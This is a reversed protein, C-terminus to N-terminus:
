AGVGLGFYFLFQVLIEEGINPQSIRLKHFFMSLQYFNAKQDASTTYVNLSKTSNSGLGPCIKQSGALMGGNTKTVSSELPSAGDFSYYNILEGSEEAGASIVTAPAACSLALM